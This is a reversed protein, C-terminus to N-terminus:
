APPSTPMAAALQGVEANVAADLTDIAPDNSQHQAAAIAALVATKFAEVAAILTTVDASLKAVQADTAMHFIREIVYDLKRDLERLLGSAEPDLHIHHDFRM